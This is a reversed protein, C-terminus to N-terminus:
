PSGPDGERASRPDRACGYGRRRIGDSRSSSCRACGVVNSAPGRADVVMRHGPALRQIGAFMTRPAPTSLFTLNHYFSERDLERPVLPHELLARIESAFLFHGGVACWYLPKVGIRDRALMLRKASADWIAFAFMGNLRDVCSDGISEYLRLVSETDSRGRFRVCRPELDRRIDQHNYVEGNYVIWRSGDDNPMPQHGAPSLDLISLRRHGLGIRREPDFHIGRDDPGRHALSDTMRDLLAPDLRLTNAAYAYVGVIGCM